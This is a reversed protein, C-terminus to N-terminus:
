RRVPGACRSLRVELQSAGDSARNLDHSLRRIGHIRQTLEVHGPQQALPQAPDSFLLFGAQQHLPDDSRGGPAYRRHFWRYRDPFPLVPQAHHHGGELDGLPHGQRGTLVGQRKMGDSRPRATRKSAFQGQGIAVHEYGYAFWDLRPRYEALRGGHIVPIQTDNRLVPTTGPCIEPQGRTPSFRTLHGCNLITKSEASRAQRWTPSIDRSERSVRFPTETDDSQAGLLVRVHPRSSLLCVRGQGHVARRREINLQGAVAAAQHRWM